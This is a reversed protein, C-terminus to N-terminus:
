IKKKIKKKILFNKVNQPLINEYSEDMCLVLNECEVMLVAVHEETRKLPKIHMLVHLIENVGLCSIRHKFFYFLSLHNYIVSIKLCLRANDVGERYLATTFLYVDTSQSPLSCSRVNDATCNAQM